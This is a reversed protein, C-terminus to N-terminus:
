KATKMQRGHNQPPNSFPLIKYFRARKRDVDRTQQV